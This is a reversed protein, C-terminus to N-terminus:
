KQPLESLSNPSFKWASWAIRPEDFVCQSAKEQDRVCTWPQYWIAEAHWCGIM